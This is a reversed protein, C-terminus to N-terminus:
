KNYYIPVNNISFDLFIMDMEAIRFENCLKFSKERPLNLLIIKLTLNAFSPLFNQSQFYIFLEQNSDM